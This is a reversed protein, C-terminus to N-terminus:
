EHNIGVLCHIHWQITKVAPGENWIKKLSEQISDFPDTHNEDKFKQTASWSDLYGKVQEFSWQVEMNLEPTDMKKFPFPINKYGDFIFKNRESWYPMLYDRGYPDLIADIKPSIKFFDYSWAAFVGNPKLFSKARPYFVEFNFWHLAQAVTILDLSQAAFQSEEAREVRFEINPFNKQALSIQAASLDSAIVKKFYSSVFKAAQGNGTACDWCVDKSPVKSLIFDFLEPPYEPRFNVYSDAQKSFRDESM